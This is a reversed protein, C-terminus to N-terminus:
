HNPPLLIFRAGREHNEASIRGGFSQEIINRSMYLGIGTGKGVEKTSFYPDFIKGIVEEAIGGADDEVCIRLWPEETRASLRIEQLRTEQEPLPSDHYADRANAILNILVQELEKRFGLISLPEDVERTLAIGRAHLQPGILKLTADIADNLEFRERERDPRFFEMFDTIIDSMRLTLQQIDHCSQEVDNPQLRGLTSSLSLNIAAASVASLPQRWQHAIMNLLEGMQAYRAQESLIRDKERNNAVEERVREELTRNLEQLQGATRRLDEEMAKRESIDISLIAFQGEKPRYSVVSFWRGLTDTYREVFNPTGTLAVEGFLRIWDGSDHEIGPFVETVRRGILEERRRGTQEEFAPNVDLYRYDVPEGEEDLIVEHLASGSRMNEFLTRFKEESERLAREMRNRQTINSAIGNMFAIEGEETIHPSVDWLMDHVEGDRSLMRNEIHISSSKERLWSAFSRQTRERDEPHVFDFASLGICAQPDVGFIEGARHNVYTFRGERDVQTVLNDTGEIFDRYLAESRRLAEEARKRQSIDRVIGMLEVAEGEEDRRLYAQVEVPFVKGEKNIYEKEYVDTFGRAWLQEDMIRWEMAHWREPTFDNFSMGMLEEPLYGTMECLAPNFSTIHGDLTTTAFGDRQMTYLRRYRAESEHLAQQIQRNEDVDRASTFLYREGGITIASLTVDVWFRRGDLSQHFWDFRVEPQDTLSQIIREAKAASSEGDPQTPPSFETPHRGILAETSGTTYLKAAESNCEVVRGEQSLLMMATTAHDFLTRYKRESEDRDRTLRRQETIDQALGLTARPTGDDAYHIRCRFLLDRTSGDLHQVKVEFCALEQREAFIRQRHERFADRADAAVYNGIFTELPMRNIPKRRGLLAAFRKGGSIREEQLDCHFNGIGAFGQTEDLRNLARRTEEKYHERRIAGIVISALLRLTEISREHWCCPRTVADLGLFGRLHRGSFMPVALLSQIGQREIIEREHVAEPPLADLTPLHITRHAGLRAMWWPLEAAPIEQLTDIQPEIGPACWEHSNSLTRRDAAHLFLYVRDAAMFEGIDALVEDITQDIRHPPPNILRLAADAILRERRASASADDNADPATPDM